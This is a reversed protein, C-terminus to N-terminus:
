RYFCHLISFFMATIKFIPSSIFCFTHYLYKSLLIKNPPIVLSPILSDWEIKKIIVEKNLQQSLYKAIQIDFGDAFQNTGDIPLTFESSTSTTWNFPQYGCEMGIVLKDNSVGGADCSAVIITTFLLLLVSLIKRM